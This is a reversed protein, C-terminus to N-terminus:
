GDLNEDQLEFRQPGDTAELMTCPPRWPSDQGPRRSDLDDIWRGIISRRTGQRCPLLDYHIRALTVVDADGGTNGGRKSRRRERDAVMAWAAAKPEYVGPLM